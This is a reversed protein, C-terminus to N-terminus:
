YLSRRLQIRTDDIAKAIWNTAVDSAQKATEITGASAGLWYRAGPTLSAGYEVVVDWYITAGKEGASGPLAVWGDVRAAEAAPDGGMVSMYIKGDSKIYVPTMAQDIDEGYTLNGLKCNLPPTLTTLTPTEIPTIVAM